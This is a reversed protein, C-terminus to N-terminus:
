FDRQLGIGITRPRNVNVRKDGLLTDVFLEARKDLVNNAFLGINWPGVLMDIRANVINYSHQLDASATNFANYSDGVHQLDAQVFTDLAKRGFPLHYRALMSYTLKPVAPIRDGKSGNLGPADKELQADVYSVGANLELDDIFRTSLELEGGRSSAQGANAIYSFGDPRVIGVQIDSWDIYFVAANLIMRRQAFESKVGIEYNWLSDSDYQSPALAGTLPDPPLTNNPGGVRFGQAAQAYVLVDESASWALAFKPNANRESSGGEDVRHGGAILGDSQLSFDQDVDFWRVGATAKLRPALDYSLEGFFALQQTSNRIHSALLLADEPLGAIPGHPVAQVLDDKLDSYFGGAIWQLRGSQPSVLRVEQSFSHTPITNDLAVTAGLRTFATVDRVERVERDFYSSSSVLEAWPMDYRVTVSYQEFDDDRIEPVARAQRLEGLDPATEQTGGLDTRQLLAVATIDLNEALQWKASLRGGFTEDSNVDSQSLQVNDVYGDENRYYGVARIAAKDQVLPVNVVGNIQYNEGGLRTSSASTSLRGSLSSPDPKNTVIKLTGGMSGAGYLTGQPGRLVEVREVDFLRLDPENSPMSVPTDDFYIGVPSQNNQDVGTSVGRITIKNRGPGRDIFSLGPVTRAYDVFEDAGLRELQVASLATISLPVDQLREARKQATVVIEELARSSDGDSAAARGANLSLLTGTIAVLTDRKM